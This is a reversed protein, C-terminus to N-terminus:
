HDYHSDSSRSRWWDLAAPQLGVCVEVARRLLRWSANSSHSRQPSFFFAGMMIESRCVSLRAIEVSRSFIEVFLDGSNLFFEASRVGSCLSVHRTHVNGRQFLTAYLAYPHGRVLRTQNVKDPRRTDIWFFRCCSFLFHMLIWDGGGDDDYHIVTVCDWNLLSKYYEIGRGWNTQRGRDREGLIVTDRLWGALWDILWIFLYILWAKM